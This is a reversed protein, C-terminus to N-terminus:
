VQQGMGNGSGNSMTRSNRPARTSADGWRQSQLQMKRNMTRPGPNQQMPDNDINYRDAVKQSYTNLGATIQNARNGEWDPDKRVDRPLEPLQPPLGGTMADQPSMGPMGAQQQQMLAQQQQLAQQDQATAAQDQQQVQEQEPPAAKTAKGEAKDKKKKLFAPPGGKKEKGKGKDKPKEEKEKAEGIRKKFMPAMRAQPNLDFWSPAADQGITPRTFPNTAPDFDQTDALERSVRIMQSMPTRSSQKRFKNKESFFKDRITPRLLFADVAECIQQARSNTM